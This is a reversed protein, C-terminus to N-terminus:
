CLGAKSILKLILTTLNGLEEVKLSEEYTHPATYGVSLVVVPLGQNRFINADSGGGTAVINFPLGLLECAQEVIMLLPDDLKIHYGPYLEETLFEVSGGITAVAEDCCARVHEIHNEMKQRLKSRVELVVEAKDCVINTGAGGHISGINATTETDIRLLQMRDIARAALSIASIGNEPAFGAHASKGHFKITIKSKYPASNIVTGVSGSADLTYGSGIPGLRSLEVGRAGALGTEESVTLLIVIDGHPLNQSILAELVTLIVAVGAKDDAGLATNGDTALVGDSIRFQVGTATPVTDMHCNLLLAPTNEMDASATLRGYVNGTADIETSIGLLELRHQLHSRILAEQGSPSDIALLELMINLARETYLNTMGVELDCIDLLMDNSQL